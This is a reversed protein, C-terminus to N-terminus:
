DLEEGHISARFERIERQMDDAADQFKDVSLRLNSLLNLVQEEFTLTEDDHKDKNMVLKKNTIIHEDNNPM